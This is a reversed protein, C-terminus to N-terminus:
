FCHRSIVIVLKLIFVNQLNQTAPSQKTSKTLMQLNLELRFLDFSKRKTKRLMAINVSFQSFLKENRMYGLYDKRLNVMMEETGHVKRPKLLFRMSYKTEKNTEETSISNHFFVCGMLFIDSESFM